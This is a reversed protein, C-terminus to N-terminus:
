IACGSAVFCQETPEELFRRVAAPVPTPTQVATPQLVRFRDLQLRSLADASSNDHGAVHQVRCVFANTAAIFWMQRLLSMLRPDRSWGKACAGVVGENDCHFTVRQGRWAPGWVYCAVVIPFMEMWAMSPCWDLTAPPWAAAFWQRDCVGGYGTQSADTSLHLQSPPTWHPPLMPASGNWSPLFALWWDIDRKTSATLSIWHHPRRVTYAADLLRRFFSRGAPVCKAAHVLKGVLSLLDRQRVKRHRRVSRLVNLIDEVKRDPLSITLAETDLICGLLEM